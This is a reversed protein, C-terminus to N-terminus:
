LYIVVSNMLNKRSKAEFHDRKQQKFKNIERCDIMNHSNSGWYYYWQNFSKKSKGLSSTASVPNKNNVPLKAPENTLRIEEM